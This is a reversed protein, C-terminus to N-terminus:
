RGRGRPSRRVPLPSAPERPRARRAVAAAALLLLALGVVGGPDRGFEGGPAPLATGCGGGGGSDPVFYSFGSAAAAQGSPNLVLVTAPGPAPAAPAVADLRVPSVFTVSSAAAGGQGTSADAGFRVTAGAVFGSGSIAVTIGGSVPASAPAIGAIGPDPPAVAAFAATALATQLDPNAASVDHAGPPLAPAIADVRAPTRSVVTAPVGGVTVAVGPEFGGGNLHITTGGSTAGAGPFVSDIQPSSVFTFAAPLRAEQGDGGLAVVDVAGSLHAPATATLQSASDLVVSGSSRSSAPRSRSGASPIRSSSTACAGRRRV